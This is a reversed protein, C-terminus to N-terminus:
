ISPSPLIGKSSMKQLSIEELCNEGATLYIFLGSLTDFRDYGKKKLASFLVGSAPGAL